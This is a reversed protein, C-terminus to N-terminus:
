TNKRVNRNSFNGYKSKIKFKLKCPYSLYSWLDNTCQPGNFDSKTLKTLLFFSESMKCLKLANETDKDMLCQLFEMILQTPAKREEEDSSSDDSDTDNEQDGAQKTDSDISVKREGALLVYV